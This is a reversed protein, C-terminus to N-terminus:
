NDENKNKKADNEDIDSENNEDEFVDMRATFETSLPSAIWLRAQSM